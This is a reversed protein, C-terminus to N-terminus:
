MLKKVIRIAENRDKTYQDTGVQTKEESIYIALMSEDKMRIRIGVYLYPNQFIGTAGVGMLAVFPEQLGRKSAKENLIDCRDIDNMKYKGTTGDMIEFTDEYIIVSRYKEM